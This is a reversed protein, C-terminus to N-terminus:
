TNSSVVCCLGLVMCFLVYGQPSAQLTFHKGQTLVGTRIELVWPFVPPPSVQRHAWCMPFPSLIGPTPQSTMRVALAPELELYLAQRWLTFLSCPLSGPDTQPKFTHIYVCMCMGTQVCMCVVCIHKFM